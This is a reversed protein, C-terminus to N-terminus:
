ITHGHLQYCIIGHGQIPIKTVEDGMLVTSITDASQNYYTINEFINSFPVFTHTAGSNIVLQILTSILHPLKKKTTHLHKATCAIVVKQSSTRPQYPLSNFKNLYPNGDNNNSNNEVNVKDEESSEYFFHEDHYMRESDAIDHYFCARCARERRQATDHEQRPPDQQRRSNGNNDGGGTNRPNRM